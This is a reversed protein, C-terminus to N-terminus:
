ESVGYFEQMVLARAQRTLRKYDELLLESSSNPYGLNYAVQRLEDLSKPLLDSNRGTVLTISNRVRSLFTWTNQLVESKAASLLELERCAQIATLTDTVQLQEHQWAHRLQMLQVLWEVDSLGGPGLKIHTAPDVGRPLRETEMRAKLRRIEVIAEESVGHEPYRVPNIIEYFRNATQTPGSIVRARLLAQAEWPSSWRQYYSAISTLNPVLVGNKGEPRLDADLKLEPDISPMGLLSTLQAAVKTATALESEATADLCYMVDFDSAFSVEHGGYRGMAVVLFPSSFSLEKSIATVAGAIVSDALESVQNAVANVDAERLVSAASVRFLERRRMARLATVAEQATEHRSVVQEVENQLIALGPGHGLQNSSLAQVSQPSRLLLNPVYKGSGLLAILREAALSEDRLLRLFWPTAGLADSIKRFNLLGEDPNPTKGFWDLFVPLLSKQINARRSLGATLAKIHTLANQPQQYGLIRLREIAAESSLRITSGDVTSVASLLPRYFLKEHLRRIILGQHNWADLLEKDPNQFFGMSRGIQRLSLEDNPLLHTRQMALLQIRHELTRLFRYANALKAGDERGVYGWTSLQELAILTNSSRIMVDSQGHVLQLLQVAFEVDRLGGRGLKLERESESVPIQEIVMTRMSQVDAVFQPSSAAQWVMPSLLDLLKTSLSIDGASPRAKLLAQFEWGQAWQQYYALYSETTRVLAGSRGEPRLNPDVQWITGQPTLQSCAQMVLKALTTGVELVESETHESSQSARDVVFLVDVDSVYNLEKGGSKGMAIIGLTCIEHEPLKARACSLAAELVADALDALAEGIQNMEKSSQGVKILDLAAIVSVQRYYEARLAALSDSWSLQSVNFNSGVTKAQVASLFISILESRKPYTQPTLISAFNGPDRILRQALASSHGFLATLKEKLENPLETWSSETKALLELTLRLAQDPNASKAFLHVESVLFPNALLSQLATDPQTFGSKVLSIRLQERNIETM